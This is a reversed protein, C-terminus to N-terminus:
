ETQEDVPMARFEDVVFDDGLMQAVHPSRLAILKWKTRVSVIVFRFDVLFCFALVKLLRL